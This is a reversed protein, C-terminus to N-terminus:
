MGGHISNKATDKIMILSLIGIREDLITKLKKSHGQSHDRWHKYVLRETVANYKQKFMQM